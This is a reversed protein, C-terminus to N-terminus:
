YIGETSTDVEVLEEHEIEDDEDDEDDVEYESDSLEELNDSYIAGLGLGDDVDEEEGDDEDDDLVIVDGLIAFFHIVLIYLKSLKVKAKMRTEM